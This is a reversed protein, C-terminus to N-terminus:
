QTVAELSRVGRMLSQAKARADALQDEADDRTLIVEAVLLGDQYFRSFLKRTLIVKGVVGYDTVCVRVRWKM